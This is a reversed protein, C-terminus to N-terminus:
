LWSHIKHEEVLAVFGSYDTIQIGPVLNTIARAKLDAQLAYVKVRQVLAELLASHTTGVQAAFVGDELLLLVDGDQIFRACDTLTTNQFPSKNVTHLM